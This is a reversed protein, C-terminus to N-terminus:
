CNPTLQPKNMTPQRMAPSSTVHARLPVWRPPLLQPAGARSDQQGQTVLGSNTGHGRPGQTGPWTRRQTRLAAAHGLAHRPAPPPCTDLPSGPIGKGREAGRPLLLPHGRARVDDGDWM